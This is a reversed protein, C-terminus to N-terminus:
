MPLKKVVVMEISARRTSTGVPFRATAFAAFRMAAGPLLMVDIHVGVLVTALM